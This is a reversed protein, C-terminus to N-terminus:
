ILQIKWYFSSTSYLAISFTIFLTTNFICCLTIYVTDIWIPMAENIHIKYLYQLRDLIFILLAISLLLYRLMEFVFRAESLSPNSNANDHEILCLLIYVTETSGFLATLLRISLLPRNNKSQIPTILVQQICILTLISSIILSFTTFTALPDM